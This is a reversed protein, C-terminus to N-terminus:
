SRPPDCTMFTLLHDVETEAPGLPLVLAEFHTFMATQPNRGTTGRLVFGEGDRVCRRYVRGIVEVTYAAKTDLEGLRRSQLPVSFAGALSDGVIRYEFDAGGDVVRVLAMHRMASAFGSPKLEERTPFRRSGRLRQWYEAAGRLIPNEVRDLPLFELM